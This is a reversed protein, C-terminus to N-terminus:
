LCALLLQYHFAPLQGILKHALNELAEYLTGEATSEDFDFEVSATQGFVKVGFSGEGTVTGFSGDDPSVM